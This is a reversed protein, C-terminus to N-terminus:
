KAAAAPTVLAQAAKQLAPDPCNARVLELFVEPQVESSFRVEGSPFAVFLQDVYRGDSRRDSVEGCGIRSLDFYKLTRFKAAAPDKLVRKVRAKVVEDLAAQEQTRKPSLEVATYLWLLAVALALGLPWLGPVRKM